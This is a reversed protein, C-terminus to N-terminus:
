DFNTNMSLDKQSFAYKLLWGNMLDVAFNLVDSM